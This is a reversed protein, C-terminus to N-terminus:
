NHTNQNILFKYIYNVYALCTSVHIQWISSMYKVHEQCTSSMYKVYVQCTSSMYKVHVQCTSSIYKDNLQCACIDMYPLTINVYADVSM